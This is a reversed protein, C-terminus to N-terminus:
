LQDQYKPPQEEDSTETVQTQQAAATGESQTQPAAASITSVPFQLQQTANAVYQVQMGPDPYQPSDGYCGCDTSCDGSAGCLVGCMVASWITLALEIIFLCSLVGNMAVRKDRQSFRSYRYDDVCGLICLAAGTIAALMSVLALSIHTSINCYDKRVSAVIAIAGTIIFFVGGWMGHGVIGGWADVVIAGIGFGICCVGVILHFIGIIMSQKSPYSTYIPRQQHQITVGQVAYYPQTSSSQVMIVQPQQQQGTQPAQGTYGQNDTGVNQMVYQPQQVQMMGAPAVRCPNQSVVQTQGAYGQNVVGQPQIVYQPQQGPGVQQVYMAVWGDVDTTSSVVVAEAWSFVSMAAPYQAM